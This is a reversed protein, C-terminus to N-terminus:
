RHPNRERQRKRDHCGRGTVGDCLWQTNTPDLRRPDNPGSIRDIHDLVRAMVILGERACESDDTVPAGPLRAGCLGARPVELRFCEAQHWDRFAEWRADYGRSRASGRRDDYAQRQVQPGHDPCPQRKGCGYRGCAKALAQPM